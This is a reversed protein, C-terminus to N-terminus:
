YRLYATKVQVEESEVKDSLWEQVKKVSMSIAMIALGFLFPSLGAIVSQIITGGSSYVISGLLGILILAGFVAGGEKEKETPKRGSSRSSRSAEIMTRSASGAAAIAAISSTRISFLDDSDILFIADIIFDIQGILSSSNKKALRLIEKGERTKSVRSSLKISKEIERMSRLPLYRDFVKKITDRSPFLDDVWDEIKGVVWGLDFGLFAEKELRAIRIELDRLAEHSLKQM